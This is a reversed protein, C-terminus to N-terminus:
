ENTDYFSLERASRNRHLFNETIQLIFLSDSHVASAIEYHYSNKRMRDLTAFYIQCQFYESNFQIKNTKNM